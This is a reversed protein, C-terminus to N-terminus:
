CLFTQLSVTFDCVLLPPKYNLFHPLSTDEELSTLRLALSIIGLFIPDNQLQIQFSETQFEQDLKVLEAKDDCCGKKKQNDDHNHKESGHMPCSTEDAANKHCSTAKVFVSVGKLENQCFHKQIVFGMSSLLVTFILAIHLTKQIM